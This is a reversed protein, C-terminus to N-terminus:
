KRRPSAGVNPLFMTLIGVAPMYSCVKFVFEISTHDALIGLGAAGIGGIGFAFGFFIGSIMGIRTPVLAHGMVVIASFASSIIVGIIATLIVTWVLNAYPLALSFPLVGLISFWIVVKRGFRDGIPGGAVTGVAVALLFVFLLVQSAQVSVGFREILYFTYFTTLSTLYLYKSFVLVALIALAMVVRGRPLELGTSTTARAAPIPLSQLRDRYWMGVRFLVFIGVLTVASFWAVSGQGNPVVIIAALLPGVASGFNGGVQFVAQALGYRGGSALRAVRSAEPHFIASGIGVMASGILLVEFTPAFAILLLGLLTSGMGVPLSFPRPWRDTVIGVVPQLLSATFQFALTLLGIRTFDLAFTEKLMPYLATILAQVTDNLFHALSVAAIVAMATKEAEGTLTKDRAPANMPRRHPAPPMRFPVGEDPSAPVKLM